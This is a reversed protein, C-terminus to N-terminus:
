ATRRVVIASAVVLAVLVAFPAASPEPDASTKAPVGRSPAPTTTPTPATTPSPSATVTKTPTWVVNLYSVGGLLPLCQATAFVDGSGDVGIAGNALQQTKVWALAKTPAVGASELASALVCTSNVPVYGTWSGNAQQAGQAWAVAKALAAQGAPTTDTLLGIIALATNDADSPAGVAYGFGGDANQQSLLWTSLAAPGTAGARKFGAMTLGSSFASPWSGVSGDAATDATMSTVLNVGGFSTPSLGYADAIIALKGPAGGGAAAYTPAGSKVQALLADITPQLAPDTASALGILIEGAMGTTPAPSVQTTLWTAAANAAATDAAHAPSVAAVSVLASLSLAAFLRRMITM